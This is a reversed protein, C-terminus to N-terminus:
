AAVGYIVAPEKIMWPHAPEPILIAGPIGTDLTALRARHAAALELLHGDTTQASKRVWDPLRDVGLADDLFVFTKLAKLQHLEAKATDLDGSMGAKGSAIRVFGLETIACTALKIETVDDTQLLHLWQEVRAHHTHGAYGLALLTNVDLLYIM